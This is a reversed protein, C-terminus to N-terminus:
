EGNPGTTMEDARQAADDGRTLIRFQRGQAIFARGMSAPIVPQRYGFNGM